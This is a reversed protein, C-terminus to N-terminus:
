AVKRGWLRAIFVSVEYLLQLPLAMMVMSFPDPPTLVASIILNVVVWYPRFKSLKASIRQADNM